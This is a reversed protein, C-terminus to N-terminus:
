RKDFNLFSIIVAICFNVSMLIYTLHLINSKGWNDGMSNLVVSLVFLILTLSLLVRQISRLIKKRKEIQKTLILLNEEALNIYKGNDIKEGSLLENVNFGLEDCLDKFLSVDPINLGREWKSVANVSVGLKEALQTQTLKKEKRTEAIFNGIKEQNM